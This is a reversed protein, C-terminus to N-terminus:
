TRTNTAPNPTLTLTCRASSSVMVSIALVSLCGSELSNSRAGHKSSRVASWLSLQSVSDISEYQLDQLQLIKDGETNLGRRLIDKSECSAQLHPNNWGRKDSLNKSASMKFYTIWIKVRRHPQYRPKLLKLSTSQLDSAQLALVAQMGKSNGSESRMFLCRPFSSEYWSSRQVSSRSHM